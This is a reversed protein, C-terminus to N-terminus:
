LYPNECLRPRFRGRLRRYEEVLAHNNKIISTQKCVGCEFTKEDGSGIVRGSPLNPKVKGASKGRNDYPDPPVAFLPCQPNRCFNIDIGFSPFPLRRRRAPSSIKTLTNM